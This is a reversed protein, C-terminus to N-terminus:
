NGQKQTYTCGDECKNANTGFRKHYFCIKNNQAFTQHFSEPRARARNNPTREHSRMSNTIEKVAEQLAQVAKELRDTRQDDPFKSPHVIIDNVNSTAMVSQVPNIEILRDALNAAATLSSEVNVSLVFQVNAPLRKLWLSRLVDETVKNDALDQMKRLLQSPKSDGLEIDYLLTQLQQEQTPRLRSILCEKLTKYKDTDPPNKVIDSVHQLLEPDIYSIVTWYKSNDGTIKKRHFAADVQIFWLAPDQKWFPPLKFEVSAVEKEDSHEQTAHSTSPQQETNM